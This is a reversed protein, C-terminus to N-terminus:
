ENISDQAVIFITNGTTSAASATVACIASGPGAESIPEQDIRREASKNLKKNERGSGSENAKNNGEEEKAFTEKLTNLQKRAARAWESEPALSLAHDLLAEAQAPHKQEIMLGAMQYYVYALDPAISVAKVYADMAETYDNKEHFAHGLNSYAASFKPNFKIAKKWLEIAEDIRKQKYLVSALGNLSNPRNPKISLAKDFAEKAKDFNNQAIYILGLNSYAQELRDDAKIAARYEEVAKNLFGSNQLELGHNYHKVAEPDYGRSKPKAEAPADQAWASLALLGSAPLLVTLLLLLSYTLLIHQKDRKFNLSNKQM